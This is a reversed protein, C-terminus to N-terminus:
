FRYFIGAEGTAYAQNKLSGFTQNYTGGVTLGISRTFYVDMGLSYRMLFDSAGDLYMFGPGVVAWFEANKWRPLYLKVDGSFTLWWGSIDRPRGGVIVPTPLGGSTSTTDSDMYEFHLEGGLWRPLRYGARVGLGGATGAEIEVSPTEYDDIQTQGGAIGTLSGYFGSRQIEEWWADPGPPPPEATAAPAVFAVLVFALGIIRLM